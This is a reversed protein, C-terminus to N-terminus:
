FYVLNIICGGCLLSAAFTGLEMGWPAKIPKNTKEIRNRKEDVYLFHVFRLMSLVYAGLIVFLLANRLTM